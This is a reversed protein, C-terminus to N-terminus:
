ATLTQNRIHTIRIGNPTWQIRTLIGKLLIEIIITDTVDSVRCVLHGAPNRIEHM